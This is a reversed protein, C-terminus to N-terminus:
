YNRRRPPRQQGPTQQDRGGSSPTRDARSSGSRPPPLQTRRRGDYSTARPTASASFRSARTRGATRGASGTRDSRDEPASGPYADGLVRRTSAARREQERRVDQGRFGPTGARGTVPAGYRRPTTRREVRRQEGPSRPTKPLPLLMLRDILPLGEHQMSSITAPEHRACNALLGMTFLTIIASTGGASIMPLQIGTVPLFGMVYGMNYFAQVIVGITLTAALMKYFPDAQALASKIGFLALAAFLAIVIVAGIWGLEEGVIAFIFDNKAEPLYFWKARSQGLGAGTLGGDSLSLMGQYSQYSSGKISQDSFRLFLADMWTTIRNSRFSQAMIAISVVVAFIGALSALLVSSVGAFFVIALLVIGVTLMMGLDKQLLVLGLIVASAAAFAGFSGFITPNRRVQRSVISSGWVALALKAVESPQVGVSGFRLWSNSGVEDAGVGVGPILVILLLVVSLGLLWPALREIHGPKLRLAVWFGVLGVAVIMAQKAFEAWVSHEAARSTVMSSSLVMTLGLGVLLFTILLIAKYNMQPATFLTRLREAIDAWESHGHRGSAAKRSGSREAARNMRRRAEQASARDTGRAGPRASALRTRTTSTDRM